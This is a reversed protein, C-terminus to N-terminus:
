LGEKQLKEKNRKMEDSYKSNELLKLCYYPDILTEKQSFWGKDVVWLQFHIHPPTGTDAGPKTNSNFSGSSGVYGIIEGAKVEIGPNEYVRGSMDKYKQLNDAYNEMRAYYYQRLGDLSELLVRWGGLGNWGIKKIRCDEVSITPTNRAAFIDNGEHGQQQGDNNRISGFDNTFSESYEQPIPFCAKLTYKRYKIKILGSDIKYNAVDNSSYIIRTSTGKDTSYEEELVNYGYAENYAKRISSYSTPEPIEDYFFIYDAYSCLLSQLLKLNRQYIEMENNKSNQNMQLYAEVTNNKLAQAARALDADNKGTLAKKTQAIALVTIWDEKYQLAEVALESFTGSPSTSNGLFLSQIFIAPLIVVIIIVAVVITIIKPLHKVGQVVLGSFDGYAARAAAIALQIYDNFKNNSM